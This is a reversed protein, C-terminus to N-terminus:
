RYVKNAATTPSRPCRTMQELKAGSSRRQQRTPQQKRQKKPVYNLGVTQWTKDGNAQAKARGRIETAEKAMMKVRANCKAKQQWTKDGKGKGTDGKGQKGGTEGECRRGVRRGSVRWDGVSSPGRYAVPM